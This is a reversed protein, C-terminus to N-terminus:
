VQRIPSYLLHTNDNKLSSPEAEDTVLMLMSNQLEAASMKVNVNTRSYSLPKEDIMPLSFTKQAKTIEVSSLERVDAIVSPYDSKFYKTL